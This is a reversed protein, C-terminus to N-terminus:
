GGGRFKKDCKKIYLFDYLSIFIDGLLFIVKLYEIEWSFVKFNDFRKWM